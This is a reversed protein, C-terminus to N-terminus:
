SPNKARKFQQRSVTLLCAWCFLSLVWYRSCVMPSSVIILFYHLMRGVAESSLASLFNMVLALVTLALSLLSLNRVLAATAADRHFHLLLAPPLFFLLSVATLLLGPIGEPEPIFGLGACLIFLGGWLLFLTNKNM